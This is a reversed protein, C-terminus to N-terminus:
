CEDFQGDLVRKLAIEHVLSQIRKPTPESLTSSASEVADTLMMVATEKTQPKRGPYRFTSEDADTRHDVDARNTAERFFYEVLTTGHHQEIFDILKRPLNHQEAMEVGDKVHGIIILASMAPALHDHPNGQVAAM